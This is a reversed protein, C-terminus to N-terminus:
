RSSTATPETLSHSCDHLLFLLEEAIECSSAKLAARRPRIVLQAGDPIQDFHLRFAERVQRKFRNRQTSHGYRRSVM